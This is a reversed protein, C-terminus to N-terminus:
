QTQGAVRQSNRLTRELFFELRDGVGTERWRWRMVEKAMRDFAVASRSGPFVQRVPKQQQVSQRLMPDFPVMGAFDLTVELYRDTVAQLKRFLGEAENQDNVMNAMVRFHRLGQDRYLVKILAYADTLSTPENCVVVLVEQAASCFDTVAPSLGAATDVLMVDPVEELDNFLNILGARESKNLTTLGAIGSGAPVLRLGGPIRVIVDELRCEGRLVHSLNRRLSLGLLVDSNALGLDADVLMVESGNAQLSVGLNIAVSSKGIGGKGGTVCLVRVRSTAGKNPRSRMETKVGQEAVM